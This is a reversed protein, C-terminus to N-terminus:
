SDRPSPSTYLLCARDQAKSEAESWSLKMSGLEKEVTRKWTNKPRGRDRCSQPTWSLAKKTISSGAKRMTHGIWTWKRRTITTEMSDQEAMNWLEKNTINDKWNINFIRRLCNGVFVQIKCHIQKTTRWTESGYLLVSKVNSNSIKLKTHRSIVKSKWLNDLMHFAVRAKGLRSKVDEETGGDTSVISGLYTFQQVEEVNCSSLEMNRTLIEKSASGGFDM